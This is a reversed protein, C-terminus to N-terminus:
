SLQHHNAIGHIHDRVYSRPDGDRTLITFGSERLFGIVADRTRFEDGDGSAARFDHCAICVQNTRRIMYKMGGIALREAGEINIKLFSIHELGHIKCIEDLSHAPVQERMCGEGQALSICNAEHDERDDIYVARSGDAVAYQLCLTNALRNWYCLKRLLRCTTPHAEIALVRGAAGVSPSFALVDMGIGAGVDVIVDGPQPQYAYFWFDKACRISREFASRFSLIRDRTYEFTSSDPLYGLSSVGHIWVDDYLISVNEGTLQRAWRTALAALLGRGGPRDLARILARKITM